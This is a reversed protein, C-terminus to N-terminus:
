VKAVVVVVEEEEEGSASVTQSGSVNGYYNNVVSTTAKGGQGGGGRQNKLVQELKENLEAIKGEQDQRQQISLRRSLMTPNSAQELQDTFNTKVLLIM